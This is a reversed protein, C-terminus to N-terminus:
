SSNDSVAPKQKAHWFNPRYSKQSRIDLVCSIFTNSAYIYIFMVDFHEYPSHFYQYTLM